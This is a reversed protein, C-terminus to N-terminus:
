YIIGLKMRQRYHEVATGTAYLIFWLSLAMWSHMFGVKQELYIMKHRGYSFV